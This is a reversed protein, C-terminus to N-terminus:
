KIKVITFASGGNWDLHKGGVVLFGELVGGGQPHNWRSVMELHGM